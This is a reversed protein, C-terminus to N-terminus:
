AAVSDVIPTRSGDTPTPRFSIECLMGDKVKQADVFKSITAWTRRIRSGVTAIAGDSIAIEQVTRATFLTHLAALDDGGTNYLMEFDGGGKRTTPIETEDGLDDKSTTDFMTMENIPTVDRVNGIRNWTPTGMTGTNRNVEGQWGRKIVPDAM